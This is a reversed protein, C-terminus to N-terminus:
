RGGDGKLLESVLRVKKSRERRAEMAQETTVAIFRTKSIPRSQAVLDLDPSIVTGITVFGGGSTGDRLLVIMEEENTVMIVGIPYAIDVVNSLRTGAGFPPEVKKFSISNGKYRYAVRNSELGVQWDSQLVAKLGEDSIRHGSLGMVVRLEKEKEFLPLCSPPINKGVRKFVEPLPDGIALEDGVKVARGQYGGLNGLVFTSKSGLVDPVQIGGAFTIYSKVGQDVKGLSLIDGEQVLISEWMPVPQRNLRCEIPAGTIALCTKKLCEIEPGLM